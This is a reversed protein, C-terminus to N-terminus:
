AWRADPMPFRDMGTAVLRLRVRNLEQTKERGIAGRSEVQPFLLSSSQWGARRQPWGWLQAGIGVM